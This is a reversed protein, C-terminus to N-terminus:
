GTGSTGIIALSEGRSVRLNLGNIVNKGGISLHVDRFEIEALSSDQPSPNESSPNGNRCYAPRSVGTPQISVPNGNKDAGRSQCCILRKPVYMYRRPHAIKSLNCFNQTGVARRLLLLRRRSTACSLVWCLGVNCPKWMRPRRPPHM